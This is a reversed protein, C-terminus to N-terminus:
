TANIFNDFEEELEESEKIKAEEKEELLRLRKDEQKAWNTLTPKRTTHLIYDPITNGYKFKLAEKLVARDANNSRHPKKPAPNQLSTDDTTEYDIDEVGLDDEDVEEFIIPQIPTGKKPTKFDEETKTQPKTQPKFFDSAVRIKTTKDEVKKNFNPPPDANISNNQPLKERIHKFGRQVTKELEKQKAELKPKLAEEEKVKRQAIRLDENIRHQTDIAINNSNSFKSSASISSGIMHNSPTRYNPIPIERSPKYPQLPTTYPNEVRVKKEKPPKYPTTHYLKEVRDRKEKPPKYVPKETYLKEVKDIKSQIAKIKKRRRKKQNKSGIVGLEKLQKLVKNLCKKM